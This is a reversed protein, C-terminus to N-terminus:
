PTYAGGSKSDPADALKAVGARSAHTYGDGPQSDFATHLDVTLIRVYIFTAFEAQLTYSQPAYLCGGLKLLLQSAYPREEVLPRTPEHGGVLGTGQAMTAYRLHVTCAPQRSLGDGVACYNEYDANQGHEQSCHM